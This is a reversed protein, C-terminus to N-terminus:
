FFIRPSFGGCVMILQQSGHKTSERSPCVNCFALCLCASPHKKKTCFSLLHYGKHPFSPVHQYKLELYSELCKQGLGSKAPYQLSFGLSPMTFFFLLLPTKKQNFFCLLSQLSTMDLGLAPTSLRPSSGSRESLLPETLAGACPLSAEM